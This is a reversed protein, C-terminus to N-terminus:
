IFPIIAIKETECKLQILTHTHKRIKPDYSGMKMANMFSNIVVIIQHAKSHTRTHSYVRM